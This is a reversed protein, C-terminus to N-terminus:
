KIIDLCHSNDVTRVSTSFVTSCLIWVHCEGCSGDERSTMSLRGAEAAAVAWCQGTVQSGQPHGGAPHSRVSVKGAPPQGRRRGTNNQPRPRNAPDGRATGPGAVAVAQGCVVSSFFLPAELQGYSSEKASAPQKINDFRHLTIFTYVMIAYYIM